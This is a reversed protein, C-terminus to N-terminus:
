SIDAASFIHLSKELAARDVEESTTFRIRKQATDTLTFFNDDLHLDTLDSEICVYKAFANCSIALEFERGKGKLATKFKPPAFNFHKPPVLIVADEQVRAGNVILRYGFFTNEPPLDGVALTYINKSELAGVSVPVRILKTNKFRADSIIIEAEGTLPILRENTVHFEVEKKTECASILVPSFFRKAMYHLAKWRGYYDISSWSVAPWCDNLQWYLAGKCRHRNRRFHEVGYKMAEGQIIQSAYVLQSLTEPYRFKESLCALIKANGGKCRQHYDLTRSFANRERAPCFAEITKVNPYSEYGFESCFRLYHSRYVEFPANQHWTKWFHCDGFNDDFIHMGSGGSSPSSPWYFVDPAYKESLDPMIREFFELYDQLALPTGISKDDYLVSEMENNGCVLGLSPHHAIRLLNDRVEASVDELFAESLRVNRCAFSFDQWVVLGLKDCLEYFDDSGYFGGGWVRLCNFNAEKCDLLLRELRDYTMLPAVCDMPVFNAGMAFFKHGNAVFTFERGYEDEDRRVTLTRLGITKEREEVVREGQKLRLVLKYLPQEGLGNPWWLEPHSVKLTTQASFEGSAIKKGQPDILEAEFSGERASAAHVLIEAAEDYLRTRVNFETIRNEGIILEVKGYIGMDPTQPAWDWGFSYSPKQIQGIGELVCLEGNVDMTQGWVYRKQQKERAYRTPSFFHVSLTNKGAIAKGKLDIEYTRFANEGHMLVEGNLSVDCVTDLGSLSLLLVEANLDEKKLTFDTTFTCEGESLSVPESFSTAMHVDGIRGAATFASILTAPLKVGLPKYGEVHLKWQDLKLHQM